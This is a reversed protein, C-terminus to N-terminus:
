GILSCEPNVDDARIQRGAGGRDGLREPRQMRPGHNAESRTVPVRTRTGRRRDGATHQAGIQFVPSAQQTAPHDGGPPRALDSDTKAGHDISAHGTDISSSSKGNEWKDFTATLCDPSLCARVSRTPTYLPQM